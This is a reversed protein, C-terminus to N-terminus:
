VVPVILLKSKVSLDEAMYILRAGGGVEAYLNGPRGAFGRDSRGGLLKCIDEPPRDAAQLLTQFAFLLVTLGRWM